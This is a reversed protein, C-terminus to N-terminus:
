LGYKQLEALIARRETSLKELEAPNRPTQYASSPLGTAYPISVSKTTRGLDREIEALRSKLGPVINANNYAQRTSEITSSYPDDPNAVTPNLSQITAPDLNLSAGQELAKPGFGHQAIYSKLINLAAAKQQSTKNAAVGKADVGIDGLAQNTVAGALEKDQLFPVVGGILDKASNTAQNKKRLALEDKSLDVGAATAKTSGEINARQIPATLIQERTLDQGLKLGQLELPFREANQQMTQGLANTQAGVFGTQATQGAIRSTSEPLITQTQTRVQDAGALQSAIAARIQEQQLAQRAPASAVEQQVLQGRAQSEPSAINWLQLINALSDQESTRQRPM